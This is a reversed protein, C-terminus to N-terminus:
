GIKYSYPLEMRTVTETGDFATGGDDVIVQFVEGLAGYGFGTSTFSQQKQVDKQNASTDYSALPAKSVVKRSGDQRKFAITLFGATLQGAGNAALFMQYGRGGEVRMTTGYPIQYEAIITEAGAAGPTSTTVSTFNFNTATAGTGSWFLTSTQTPAAGAASPM